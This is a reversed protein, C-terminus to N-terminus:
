EAHAMMAAMYEQELVTVDAFLEQETKGEAMLTAQIIPRYWEAVEDMGSMGFLSAVVAGYPERNSQLCEQCYAFSVAGTASCAVGVAERENCVNCKMDLEM